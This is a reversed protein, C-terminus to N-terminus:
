QQRQVCINLLKQVTDICNDIFCKIFVFFTWLSELKINKSNQAFSKRKESQLLLYSINWYPIAFFDYRFHLIINLSGSSFHNQMVFWNSNGSSTSLLLLPLILPPPPPKLFTRPIQQFIKKITLTM